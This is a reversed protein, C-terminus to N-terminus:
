NRNLRRNPAGLEGSLFEKVKQLLLAPDTSIKMLFGIAGLDLATDIAVDGGLNTLMVVMPTGYKEPGQKIQKLTDIGDVKPMVIDLLVLDVDKHTELSALCTSGDDAELVEYEPVTSLLGVFVTRADPEDEVIMVKYKKGSTPQTASQNVTSNTNSNTPNEAQTSNPVIYTSGAGSVQNSTLGSNSPIPTQM